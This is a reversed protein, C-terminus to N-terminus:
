YQSEGHRCRVGPALEGDFPTCISHDGCATYCTNAARRSRCDIAGAACRQLRRRDRVAPRVQVRSWAGCLAGGFVLTVLDTPGDFTNSYLSTIPNKYIYRSCDLRCHLPRSACATCAAPPPLSARAWRRSSTTASTGPATNRHNITRPLADFLTLLTDNSAIFWQADVTSLYNTNLVRRGDSRACCPPLACCKCSRCHM